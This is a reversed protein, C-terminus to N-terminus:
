GPSKKNVIVQAYIKIRIRLIPVSFGYSRM